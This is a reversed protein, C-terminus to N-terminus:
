GDTPAPRSAHTTADRARTANQAQSALRAAAHPREVEDHPPV